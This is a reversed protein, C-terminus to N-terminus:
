YFIEQIIENSTKNINIKMSGICIYFKEYFHKKCKNILIKNANFLIIIKESVIFPLLSNTKNKM